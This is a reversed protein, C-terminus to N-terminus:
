VRIDREGKELRRLSEIVFKKTKEDELADIHKILEKEGIERTEDSAYDLLYEKLTLIANPMCFNHVFSSKAVDM